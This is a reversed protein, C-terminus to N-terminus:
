WAYGIDFRIAPSFGTYSNFLSENGASGSLWYHDAGIGLGIAFEDGVFWQWGVLAGVSFTSVTADEDEEEDLGNNNSANLSNYSINPAIYFGRPTKKSPHLRAELNIGFGGIDSITPIQFGIGVMAADSVKTMYTLNYFLFFKLPNILLLHNRVTIDESKSIVESRTITVEGTASDVQRRTEETKTQGFLVTTQFCVVMLIGVLIFKNM